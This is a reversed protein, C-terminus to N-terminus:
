GHLPLKEISQDELHRLECVTEVLNRAIGEALKVGLEAALGAFGAVTVCLDPDAEDGAGSEIVGVGEDDAMGIWGVIM